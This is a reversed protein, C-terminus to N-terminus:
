FGTGEADLEVLVGRSRMNLEGVAITFAVM